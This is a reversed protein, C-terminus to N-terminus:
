TETSTGQPDPVSAADKQSESASVSSSTNEAASRDLSGIKAGGGELKGRGGLIKARSGPLM